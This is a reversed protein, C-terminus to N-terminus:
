CTSVQNWDESASRIGIWVHQGSELGCTSVQNWDVRASRIGIWMHQGWEACVQVDASNTNLFSMVWYIQHSNM